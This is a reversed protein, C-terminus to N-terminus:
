INKRFSYKHWLEDSDTISVETHEKTLVSVLLSIVKAFQASIDTDHIMRKTNHLHRTERPRRCTMRYPLM